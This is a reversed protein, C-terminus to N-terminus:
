MNLIARDLQDAVTEDSAVYCYKKKPEATDSMMFLTFGPFPLYQRDSVSLISSPKNWIYSFEKMIESSKIFTKGFGTIPKLLDKTKFAYRLLKTMDHYHLVRFPLSPFPNCVNKGNWVLGHEFSEIIEKMFNEFEDFTQFHYSTKGGYFIGKHDYVQIKFWLEKYHFYFMDRELTYLPYIKGKPTQQYIVYKFLGDTHLAVDQNAKPVHTSYNTLKIYTETSHYKNLNIM